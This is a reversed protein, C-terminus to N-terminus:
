KEKYKKPSVGFRKKFAKSFANQTSYNLMDSIESIKIKGELILLRAVDLKKNVFYEMLTSGTTNKFINSLYGYSYDMATAIEKLNVLSYIHTDIYNMIRQCLVEARDLNDPQIKSPEGLFSRITYIIIEKFIALLLQHKYANESNLESIANSIFPPIREDHFIRLEPSHCRESIKLLESAFEEDTTTFALFDFKLPNEKDTIIKHTDCPFTIHIDGRELPVPTGNIIVTGKGGTVVTLEYLVTHMHEDIVTDRNCYMRGIQAVFIDEFELPESFFNKELHYYVSL